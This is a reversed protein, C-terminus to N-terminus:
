PGQGDDQVAQRRIKRRGNGDHHMNSGIVFTQQCLNQFAARMQLDCLRVRAVHENRGFDKDRRGVVMQKDDFAIAQLQRGRVRIFKM